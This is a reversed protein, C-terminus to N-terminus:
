TNEQLEIDGLEEDIILDDGLEEDTITDDSPLSLDGNMINQSYSAYYSLIIDNIDADSLEEADSYNAVFHTAMEDVIEYDLNIGNENLVDGLKDTVAAQYDEANEFQSKDITLLDKIGESVTAYIEGGNGVGVNNLMISLTLDTLMKAISNLHENAEITAIVRNMVTKGDADKKIFASTMTEPDAAFLHFIVDERALILYVDLVTDVDEAFNNEDLTTFILFLANIVDDVPDEINLSLCENSIAIATGRLAGSLVYSVYKDHALSDVMQEIADCEEDTPDTWNFTGFNISDSVTAILFSLTDILNTEEGNIDVTAFSACLPDCFSDYAVYCLASNRTPELYENYIQCFQNAGTDGDHKEAIRDNVDGAIGIINIFPLLVLLAVILGQVLGIVMGGCRNQFKLNKKSFNLIFSFVGHIIYTLASTIIFCNSFIFPIIITLLPLQLIREITVADYCALIDLVEPTLYSNLGLSMLLEEVNKNAFLVEIFNSIIATVAFSVLISFFITALRMSQRKVGRLYGKILGWLTLAFFILAFILSITQGVLM